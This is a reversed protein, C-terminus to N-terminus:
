LCYFTHSVLFHLCYTSFTSFTGLLFHSPPPLLSLLSLLLQLSSLVLLLVVLFQLCDFTLFHSGLFQLTGRRWLKSHGGLYWGGLITEWYGKGGRAGEWTGEFYGLIRAMVGPENRSWENRSLENRSPENRSLENRSVLRLGQIEM